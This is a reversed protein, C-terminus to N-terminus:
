VGERVVIGLAEIEAIATAQQGADQANDWVLSQKRLVSPGRVIVSVDTDTAAAVTTNALVVAAAVESGDTAVPNHLTYKGTATVKGLVSGVSLDAGARINATVTERCFGHDSGYEHKLLNSILPKRQAVLAM